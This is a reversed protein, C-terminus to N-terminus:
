IKMQTGFEVVRDTPLHFSDTAGAANMHLLSFLRKRWARMPSPGGPLVRMKRAFYTTNEEDWPLGHHRAEKLIRVTNPEEMFGVEASVAWFGDPMWQVKVRRHESVYPQDVPVISLLIVTEHLVHAHRVFTVLAFPAQAAPTMFVATGPVRPTGETWLRGLFEHIGETQQSILKGLFVTGQRWTLMVVCSVAAIAIAYWGGHLVKLMNSSLFALDVALFVGAIIYVLLPPWRWSKLAVEAWLLSTIAMVATVAIGYADALSASNRFIFVTTLCGVMMSWNLFPIYIQGEADRSTHVIKLRPLYNLRIAQRAMSFVGSIMAQSAIITACTALVIMPILLPPPVMGYFPKYYHLDADPQPPNDLVWAGQGFYNLLLCPWVLAFWSLRIPGIGFHGIDAYLAEAGTVVLVVAGLLMFTEMPADSILRVAYMPNAAELVSWEGAIARLGLVALTLFWIVMVPGFVKGIHGTGLRQVMFLAVLVVTTVPAVYPHLAPEFVEIGEIASLVSISPTIIGDGFLLGSGLIAIFGFFALRTGHNRTLARPVLSLLAFLGGEGRNTARTIIFQYKFVVVIALAWFVLSLVGMVFEREAGQHKFITEQLAYLPSTGIDGFVVGVAGLALPVLKGRPGHHQALEPEPLATPAAAPASAAAGPASAAAEPAPAGGAPAGVASADPAGPADPAPMSADPSPAPDQSDRSSNPQDTSV